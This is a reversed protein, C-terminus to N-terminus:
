LEPLPSLFVNLGVNSSNPHQLQTKPSRIVTFKKTHINIDLPLTLELTTPPLQCPTPPQLPWAEYAM